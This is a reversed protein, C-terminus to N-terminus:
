GSFEETTGQSQVESVLHLNRVLSSASQTWWIINQNTELYFPIEPYCVFIRWVISLLCVNGLRNITFLYEAWLNKSNWVYIMGYVSPGFHSHAWSFETCLWMHCRAMSPHVLIVTLEHLRLPKWVSSFKKPAEANRATGKRAWGRRFVARIMKHKLISM